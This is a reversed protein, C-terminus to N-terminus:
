CYVGQKVGFSEKCEEIASHARKLVRKPPEFYKLIEWHPPPVPHTNLDQVVAGHFQAQKIRHIAPNYSIRTDYWPSRNRCRLLM